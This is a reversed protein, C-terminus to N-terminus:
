PLLPAGDSVAFEIWAAAANGATDSARVELRYRGDAAQWDRDLWFLYRGPRREHNQTTQPAYFSAYRSNDIFGLRSDIAKQWTGAHGAHVLRWRLLAPTLPLHAFPGPVVLPQADYAEAVIAFRGRGAPRLSVSAVDPATRDAYPGLAGPRLPNVYGSGIHEALHVHGWRRAVHGLLQHRHVFQGPRVVPDIHWYAFRRAGGPAVVEVGQPNDLYVSGDEVAYVATGDPAAVDVGWHFNHVSGEIRPDNLYGRVPHQRDFPRVPWGYSPRTRSPAAWSRTVHLAGPGFTVVPRAAITTTPAATAAAAAAFLAATAAVAIAIHHTTKM